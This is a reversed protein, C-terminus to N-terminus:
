ELLIKKVINIGLNLSSEFAQFFLEDGSREVIQQYKRINKNFYEDKLHMHKKSQLIM